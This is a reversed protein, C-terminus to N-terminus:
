SELLAVDAAVAFWTSTESPLIQTSPWGKLSRSRSQCRRVQDSGLRSLVATDVFTRISAQTVTKTM